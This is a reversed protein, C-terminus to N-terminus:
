NAADIKDMLVKAPKEFVKAAQQVYDRAQEFNGEEVLCRGLNLAAPAPLPGFTVAKLFYEITKKRDGDAQAFDALRRWKDATNHLKAARLMYDEADTFKGLDFKVIACERLLNAIMMSAGHLKKNQKLDADILTEAIDSQLRASLIKYIGVSRDTHFRQKVPSSSYMRIIETDVAYKRLFDLYLCTYILPSSNEPYPLSKAQITDTFLDLNGAGMAAFFKQLAIGDDAIRQCFALQDANVPAKGTRTVDTKGPKTAAAAFYGLRKSSSNVINTFFILRGDRWAPLFVQENNDTLM